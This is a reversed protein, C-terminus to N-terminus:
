PGVGGTNTVLLRFTVAGEADTSISEVLVTTRAGHEAGFTRLLRSWQRLTAGVMDASLMQGPAPVIRWEISHREKLLSVLNSAPTGCNPCCIEAETM